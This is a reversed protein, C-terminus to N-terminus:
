KLKGNLGQIRFINVLGNKNTPHVIRIYTIKLLSRIHIVYNVGIKISVILYQWIRLNKIQSLKRLVQPHHAKLLHSKEVFAIFYKKMLRTM